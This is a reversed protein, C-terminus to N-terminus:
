VCTRKESSVLNPQSYNTPELLLRLLEGLRVISKNKPLIFRALRKLNMVAATLYAQIQVNDLGRRIARALGHCTKAEGHRGEVLWRHRQYVTVDERSRRAHRRRARILAEYGHLINVKRSKSSPSFCAKRLPCARCDALRARYTWGNSSLCSRRLYKGAPCRVLQNHADYKFRSLPLTSGGNQGVSVPPIVAHIHQRELSDYNQSHAYSRDATVTDPKHGLRQEVRQLQELMALGENEEGTTVQADVVVGAKDDVSTHQKYSPEM